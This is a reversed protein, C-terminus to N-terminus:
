SKENKSESLFVKLRQYLRTRNAEMLAMESSTVHGYGLGKTIGWGVCTVLDDLQKVTIQITVKKPKM